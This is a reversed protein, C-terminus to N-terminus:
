AKLTSSMRAFDDPAPPQAPHETGAVIVSVGRKALLIALTIGTPGGGVILVDCDFAM